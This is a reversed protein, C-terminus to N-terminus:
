KEETETAEETLRVDYPTGYTMARDSDNLGKTTPDTIIGLDSLALIVMVAFDKLSSETISPTIHLLSLLAYIIGISNIVFLTLWVKNKFREKWNIKM